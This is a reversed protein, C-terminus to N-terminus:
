NTWAGDPTRVVICGFTNIYRGGDRGHLLPTPFQLLDVADGRQVNQKCAANKM